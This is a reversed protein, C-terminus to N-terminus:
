FMLSTGLAAVILILTWLSAAALIPRSGLKLFSRIRISAGVGAMAVTFALGEAVKIPGLFSEPVLGASRLLVAVLFGIVYWPLAQSLTPRRGSGDHGILGAIVLVPALFLVRTLKVVTASALAVDGGVSAAAIVQSTDHVSAGALVGYQEPGFGLVRNLLPLAFVAITGFLAVLGIAYAIEDDDAHSVPAAAAIASQGCIAFGIAMLLRLPKSMGFRKGIVMGMTLAVAVTGVVVVLGGVGVEAVADFSLRFGLLVIGIRLPLKSAWKLVQREADSGPGAIANAWIAALVLALVLRSIGTPISLLWAAAVIVALLLVGRWNRAAQDILGTRTEQSTSELSPKETM